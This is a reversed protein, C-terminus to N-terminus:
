SSRFSAARRDPFEILVQNYVKAIDIAVWMTPSTTSSLQTM